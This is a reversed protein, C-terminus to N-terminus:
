AKQKQSSKALIHLTLLKSGNCFKLINYPEIDLEPTLLENCCIEQANGFWVCYSNSPVGNGLVFLPTYWIHRDPHSPLTGSRDHDIVNSTTTHNIQTLM